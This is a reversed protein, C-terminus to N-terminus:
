EFGRPVPPLADIAKSASKRGAERPNFAEFGLRFAPSNDRLRYDDNAADLFLPAAIISTKDHGRQDQWQELSLGGPFTIPRGANWYLNGDLIFHDDKWNSGLLPSDNSWAVINNRFFFSTHDETRTRQLQQVQADVFINNLIFNEKGYHQHFGGTKTRYVLNNRMVIQSSGEDTYLGWGGYDYANVDHVVNGRVHTNPSVGLTYVGAMDSLVGQGITHIHNSEIHNGHARSPEAYGWTWGVSIGTYYFDFIDNDEIVNNSAHGIWVGVAAPHLRGGHAITNNKIRMFEVAEGNGPPDDGDDSWSQAGGANGIKIGGAGLDVVQSNRLKCGRAGPGFTIGYGGTHRVTCSALSVGQADVVQVASPINVEAQPYSNGQPPCHWNTHAITIGNISVNSARVLLVGELRPAVVMSNEPTEGENPVYTLEGTQNDLFWEGPADLAERVNDLFYRHGDRFAGWHSTTRTPGTLTVTHDIANVLAVRMRSASWIHFCFVEISPDRYQLFDIEDPRYTFRDHGKGANAATPEVQPGFHFYGKAPVRPRFRRQDNVFLQSFRWQGSKVQPLTVRWRGDEGVRWDTIRRGASFVISSSPVDKAAAIHVYLDDTLARDIIIPQDLEYFGPHVTLSLRHQVDDSGKQRLEKWAQLAQTIGSFAPDGDPTKGDDIEAAPM